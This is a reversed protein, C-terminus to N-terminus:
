VATREGDDVQSVDSSRVMCSLSDGDEFYATEGTPPRVPQTLGVPFFYLVVAVLM